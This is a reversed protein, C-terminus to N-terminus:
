FLTIPKQRLGLYDQPNTRTKDMWTRLAQELEYTTRPEASSMDQQEAVDKSLDYLEKKGDELDLVLKKSGKRISRLHVFLRYDSESYAALDLPEGQLLPVLSVGDVGSPTPVGLMDFLTPFLDVTRVVEKIDHRRAYGPVRMTMVVHLQEEYLTAGHDLGGHELFEDGHDSFVIVVTNDLLGMARVDAMFNGLRQDAERVKQDYIDLLFQADEKGLAATINPDDGPKQIAALAQERLKANEAITGDLTGHYDHRASQRSAEALEYQGHVDYGHLFLFFREAQHARLWELAGPISHDLGGFYRDDLYHDFGRGFGFSAQVGAGGTFGGAIWGERILIDPFTEIGPSLSTPVMQDESLLKLKNTIGHVSPWRGTWVSMHSPLTWSAASVANHFVISEEALADLNPTLGTKGGIGTRDYRLADMSVLIVNLEKARNKLDYRAKEMTPTAVLPAVAQGLTEGEMVPKRLLLWAVVALNAVIAVLVFLRVNKM